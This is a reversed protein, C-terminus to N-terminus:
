GTHNMRSNINVSQMSELSKTTEFFVLNFINELLTRYLIQGATTTMKFKLDNVFHFSQLPGYLSWEHVTKTWYIELFIM